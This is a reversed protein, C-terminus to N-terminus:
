VSISGGLIVAGELCCYIVTEGLNMLDSFYLYFSSASSGSGILLILYNEQFFLVDRFAASM